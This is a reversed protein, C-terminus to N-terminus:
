RFEVPGQSQQMIEPVRSRQVREVLDNSGVRLACHSIPARSHGVVMWEPIRRCPLIFGSGPGENLSAHLCGLACGAFLHIELGQSRKVFVCTCTRFRLAILGVSFSHFCDVFLKWVVFGLKEIPERNESGHFFTDPLDLFLSRCGSEKFLYVSLIWLMGPYQMVQNMSVIIWFMGFFSQLCGASIGCRGSRDRMRLVHRGMNERPKTVPLLRRRRVLVGPASRFLVHAAGTFRPLVPIKM